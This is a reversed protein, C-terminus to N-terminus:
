DEEPLGGEGLSRHVPQYSTVPLQKSEEKELWDPIGNGDEDMPVEFAEEQSEKEVLNKKLGFVYKVLDAAKIDHKDNSM